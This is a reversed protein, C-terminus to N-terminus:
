SVEKLEPFKLQLQTSDLTANSGVVFAIDPSPAAKVTPVIQIKGYFESQYLEVKSQSSMLLLGWFVGVRDNFVEALATIEIEEDPHLLFYREIEEVMESLNEKHALQAIAKMAAKRAMKTQTPRKAPKSIKRDVIESIAEIQAILEELTIRRAKPPLAVPLRRLRKDFDTPLRLTHTLMEADLEDEEATVEEAQEYAAQIDSLSNAKLLVLMAAYLMAQGSDYLDRRDSVILRSLFRDVVDIVQVDWPDIEGREALDILLAIADKTVSEAISITM